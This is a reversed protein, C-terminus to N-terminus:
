STCFDIHALLERHQSTPYMAKCNPCELFSEDLLSTHKPSPHQERMTLKDEFSTHFNRSPDIYCTDHIHKTPELRTMQERTKRLEKLVKNLQHQVNQRDFKENEFDSTCRQIQNSLESKKKKEEELKGQTLELELRLRQMKDKLHRQEEEQQRVSDRLSQQSAALNEEEKKKDAYKVKMASLQSSLQETLKQEAELDKKAALLLKDYYKQKDEDLKGESQADTKPTEKEQQQLTKNASGLQQELEFIRAMLGQVYAERQQDYVLWQQNKELADKLQGELINVNSSAEIKRADQALQQGTALCDIRSAVASLQDQLVETLQEAKRADVTCILANEEKICTLEEKLNDIEENQKALEQGNKEKLTELDLIKELLRNREVDSIKEKSKSIEELSKKLAANERRLKELDADNKSAGQKFGLKNGLIKSNM